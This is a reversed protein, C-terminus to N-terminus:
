PWARRTRVRCANSSPSSGTPTDSSPAALSSGGSGPSRMEPRGRVAALGQVDRLQQLQPAGDESARLPQEPAIVHRRRTARRMEDRIRNEVNASPLGAARQRSEVQVRQATRVHPSARGSRPRQHRPLRAGVAPAPGAQTEPALVSLARVPRRGRSSGQRAEELLRSESSSDAPDPEGPEKLSTPTPDSVPPDHVFGSASPLGAALCM